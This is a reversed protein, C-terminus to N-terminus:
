LVLVYVTCFERYLLANKFMSELYVQKNFVILKETVILNEGFVILAVFCSLQADGFCCVVFNAMRSTSTNTDVVGM